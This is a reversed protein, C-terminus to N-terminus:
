HWPPLYEPHQEIIKRIHFRRDPRALRISGGASGGDLPDRATVPGILDDNPVPSPQRARVPLPPSETVTEARDHRRRLYLYRVERPAALVAAVYSVEM